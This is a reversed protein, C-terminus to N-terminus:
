KLCSPDCTCCFMVHYMTIDCDNQDEIDCKFCNRWAFVEMNEPKKLVDQKPAYIFGPNVHLKMKRQKTDSFIITAITHWDKPGKGSEVITCRLSKCDQLSQNCSQVYPKLIDDRSM